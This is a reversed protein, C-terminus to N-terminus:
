QRLNAETICGPLHEAGDIELSLLKSEIGVHAARHVICCRAAIDVGRSEHIETHAPATPEAAQNGGNFRAELGHHEEHGTEALLARSRLCVREVEKRTHRLRHQRREEFKHRISQQVASPLVGLIQRAASRLM